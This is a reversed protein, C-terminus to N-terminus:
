STVFGHEIRDPRASIMFWPRGPKSFIKLGSLM